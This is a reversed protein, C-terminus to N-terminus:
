RQPVFGNGPQIFGEPLASNADPSYAQQPAPSVQPVVFQPGVSRAQAVAPTPQVQPVRAPAAGARAYGARAAYSAQDSSTIGAAAVTPVGSGSLSAGGPARSDKASRTYALTSRLDRTRAALLLIVGLLAFVIGGLTATPIMWALEFMAPACLGRSLTGGTLAFAFSSCDASTGTVLLEPPLFGLAVGGAAGVFGVVMLAIGFGKM